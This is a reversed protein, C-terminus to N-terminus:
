SCPSCVNVSTLSLSMRKRKLQSPPMTQWQINRPYQLFSLPQTCTSLLLDCPIFNRTDDEYKWTRSPTLTERTQFLNYDAVVYARGYPTSSIAGVAKMAKGRTQSSSKYTQTSTYSKSSAATTVGRREPYKGVGKSPMTTKKTM